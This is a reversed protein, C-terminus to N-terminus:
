DDFSEYYIKDKKSKEKIAESLISTNVFKIEGSNGYNISGWVDKTAVLAKRISERTNLTEESCTHYHEPEGVPLPHEPDVVFFNIFLRSAASNTENRIETFRHIMNNDFAVAVGDNTEVTQYMTHNENIYYSDPLAKNKFKLRGGTLSEDVLCYYVGNAVIRETVGEVHWKGDYATGPPILYKQAKIIVQLTAKGKVLGLRRFGPIMRRFVDEINGYFSQSEVDLPIGPIENLIKVSATDDSIEFLVPKWHYKWRTNLPDRDGSDIFREHEAKLIDSEIYKKYLSVFCDDEGMNELPEELLKIRNEWAAQLDKFYEPYRDPDIIDQVIGNPNWDNFRSAYMELQGILEENKEIMLRSCLYIPYELMTYGSDGYEVECNSGVKVFSNQPNNIIDNLRSINLRGLPHSDPDLVAVNGCLGLDVKFDNCYVWEKEVIKTSEDEEVDYENRIHGVGFLYGTLYVISDDTVAAERIPYFYLPVQKLENPHAYNEVFTFSEQLSIELHTNKACLVDLKNM